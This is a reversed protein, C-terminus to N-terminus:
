SHWNFPPRPRRRRRITRHRSISAQHRPPRDHKSTKFLRFLNSPNSPPRLLLHHTQQILITSLPLELHQASNSIPNDIPVTTTPKHTYFCFLQLLSPSLCLLHYGILHPSEDVQSLFFPKVPFFFPALLKEELQDPLTSQYSHRSTCLVCDVRISQDIIIRLKDYILLTLINTLPLRDPHNDYIVFFTTLVQSRHPALSRCKCEPIIWHSPRPSKFPPWVQALVLLM